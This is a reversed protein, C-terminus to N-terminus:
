NIKSIRNTPKTTVGTGRNEKCKYKKIRGLKAYEVDRSCSTIVSFYIRRFFGCVFKSIFPILHVHFVNSETKDSYRSYQM